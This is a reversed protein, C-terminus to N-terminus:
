TSFSRAVCVAFAGKQRTPIAVPLWGRICGLLAIFSDGSRPFTVRQSTPTFQVALRAGLTTIIRVVAPRAIDVQRVVPDTIRGGPTSETAAAFVHPGGSM